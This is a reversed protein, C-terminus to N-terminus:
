INEIVVREALIRGNEKNKIFSVSVHQGEEVDEFQAASGHSLWMFKTLPSVTFDMLINKDLFSRIKFTNTERDVSDVTGKMKLHPFKGEKHLAYLGVGGLAALAGLLFRKM